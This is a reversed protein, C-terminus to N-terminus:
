LLCFKMTLGLIWTRVMFIKFAGRGLCGYRCYKYCYSEDALIYQDSYITYIFNDPKALAIAENQQACGCPRPGVVFNSPRIQSGRVRIGFFVSNAADSDCCNSLFTKQINLTYVFVCYRRMQRSEDGILPMEDFRAHMEIQLIQM